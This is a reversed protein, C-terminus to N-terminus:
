KSTSPRHEIERLREEISRLLLLIQGIVQEVTLTGREWRRVVEELGYTSM